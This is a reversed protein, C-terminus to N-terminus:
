GAASGDAKQSDRGKTGEMDLNLMRMRVKSDDKSRVSQQMKKPIMQLVCLDFNKMRYCYSVTPGIEQM